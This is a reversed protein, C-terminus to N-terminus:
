FRSLIDVEARHRARASTNPDRAIKKLDQVASAARAPQSPRATPHTPRQVPPAGATKQRVVESRKAQGQEYRLGKLAYDILRVHRHDVVNGLEEATFGLAALDRAAEQHFAARRKEDRLDPMVSFLKEREDAIISQVQRQQEAQQQAQFQQYRGEWGRYAEVGDRHAIWAQSYAWEDTQKLRPDPPPPINARAAAVVQQYEQDLVQSRQAVRQHEAVVPEALRQYESQLRAEYATREEHNRKLDGVTTTTGDRLRVKADARIPRDEEPEPEPDPEEGEESSEEEAAAEPEEPEDWAEDGLARPLEGPAEADASAPLETEEEPPPEAPKEARARAKRPPKPPAAEQYPDARDLISTEPAATGEGGSPAPTNVEAM